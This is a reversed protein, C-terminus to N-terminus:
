LKCEDDTNFVTEVQSGDRNGKYIWDPSSWYIKDEVSDYTVGYVIESSNGWVNMVESASMSYAQLGGKYTGFYIVPQLKVDAAEHLRAEGGYEDGFSVVAVLTTILLAALIVAAFLPNGPM